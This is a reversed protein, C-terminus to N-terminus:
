PIRTCEKVSVFNYDDGRDVRTHAERNVRIMTGCGNTFRISATSGDEYDPPSPFSRASACVRRAPSFDLNSRCLDLTRNDSHGSLRLSVSTAYWRLFRGHRGPQRSHWGPQVRM